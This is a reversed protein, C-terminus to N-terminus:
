QCEKTCFNEKLQCHQWCVCCRQQLPRTGEKGQLCIDKSHWVNTLAWMATLGQMTGRNTNRSFYLLLIAICLHFVWLVSATSLGMSATTLHQGGKLLVKSHLNFFVHGM